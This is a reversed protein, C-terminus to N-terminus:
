VAGPMRAPSTRAHSQRCTKPQSDTHTSRPCILSAAFAALRTWCSRTGGPAESGGCCVAPLVGVCLVDVGVCMLLACLNSSSAMVRALHCFRNRSVTYSTHLLLSADTLQHHYSLQSPQHGTPQNIQPASTTSAFVSLTSAAESTPTRNHRGASTSAFQTRSM